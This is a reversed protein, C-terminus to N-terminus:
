GLGAWTLASRFRQALGEDRFRHYAVAQAVGYNPFATRLKEAEAAAEEVRKAEVLAAIYIATPAPLVRDNLRSRHEAMMEVADDFKGDALLGVGLFYLLPLSDPSMRMATRIHTIGKAADGAYSMYRGLQGRMLSDTPSLAVARRSAKLAEDFDGKRFHAEALSGWAPGFDADLRIAEEALTQAQANMRARADPDPRAEAELLTVFALGAHGGAFLPDLDIAREASAKAAALNPPTPPIRQARSRIYADYAEAKPTYGRATRALSAPLEAVVQEAIEDQISFVDDIQRDYREAWVQQETKVETLRVTLRLQDGARRLSGELVFDAGLAHGVWAQEATGDGFKEVASPPMVFLGEVKSLDTNIDEAIGVALYDQEPDGSVNEFPLVVISLTEDSGAIGDPPNIVLYVTSVAILLAVLAVVLLLPRFSRKRRPARGPAVGEPLVQYARVPQAINKVTTEGMEVIQADVNSKLHDYVTGSICLGGPPAIQELRAAINVGDGFLDGDEHIVDGLNIGIRMIQQQDSPVTRAEAALANQMALGCQVAEVPSAFEILMGDGMKKVIRGHFGALIPDIVGAQIRKQRTLTGTEDAEMMRSYGVIDAAMIAVIRREM